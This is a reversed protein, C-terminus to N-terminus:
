NSEGESRGRIDEQENSKGKFGQLLYKLKQKCFVCLHLYNGNLMHVIWMTPLSTSCNDCEIKRKSNDLKLLKM